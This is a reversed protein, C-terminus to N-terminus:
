SDAPTNTRSPKKKNTQKKEKKKEGESVFCFCACARASEGERGEEMRRWLALPLLPSPCFLFYDLSCYWWRTVCNLFIFFSLASALWNRQCGQGASGCEAPASIRSVTIFKGAARRGLLTQPLYFDLQICHRQGTKWKWVVEQHLQVFHAEGSTRM